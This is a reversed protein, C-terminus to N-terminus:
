ILADTCHGSIISYIKAMDQEYKDSKREVAALSINLKSQQMYILEVAKALRTGTVTVGYVALEKVMHEPPDLFVAATM